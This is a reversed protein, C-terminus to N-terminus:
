KQIELFSLMCEQPLLGGHYYRDGSYGQKSFHQRPYVLVQLGTDLYDIGPTSASVHVGNSLGSLDDGAVRRYKVESDPTDSPVAETTTGEPLLVFGHDTVVYIRDWSEEDLKQRIMSALESVYDHFHHVMEGIEGEGVEDIEKDYYAIQHQGWGSERDDPVAWGEDDLFSIRQGKNSLLRDGQFPTLTGNHMRVSFRFSRGPTLAAMGFKTESPFTSLRTERTVDFSDNLAEALQQALDFRLADILLIAVTGAKKFEDEHDNWWEHAPAKDLLPSNVQMAAEVDGALTELYERYRSTLMEDRIDPLTGTAPHDAPVDTEPTGTLQLHLVENDIQWSGDDPDAYATFPDTQGDRAEWADFQQQLRALHECQVWLDRWGTQEPYVTLASQRIQAHEICTALEGAEFLEYWAEWLADDLARDVPCDAYEWVDELNRIVDGWFEVGLYTEARARTGGMNLLTTLPSHSSEGYGDPFLSGDVGSEHLSQAVAWRRVTETIEEPGADDAIPIEDDLKKRIDAVTETDRSIEPWGERLLHDIIKGDGRTLIEERLSRYQPIGPTEFEAKIIGAIQDRTAADNMEVDFIDWPNVEYLDATLEEISCSVEGGTERIDRFWDRGAKAEGIYWVIPRDTEREEAIADTRLSLPFGEAARFGIGLNSAAQQVTEELHGGDDWWVVRVDATHSEPFTQQLRQEAEDTLSHRPQPIM